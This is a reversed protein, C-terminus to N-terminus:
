AEANLRCRRYPTLLQAYAGVSRCVHWVADCWWVMFDFRGKRRQVGHASMLIWWSSVSSLTKRVGRSCMTFVSSLNSLAFTSATVLSQWVKRMLVITDGTKVWKAWKRSLVSSFYLFFISCILHLLLPFLLNIQLHEPGPTHWLAAM